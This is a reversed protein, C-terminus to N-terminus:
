AYRGLLGEEDERMALPVGEAYTERMEPTIDIYWFDGKTKEYDLFKDKDSYGTMRSDIFANAEEETDFYKYPEATYTDFVEWEGLKHRQPEVGFRKLFKKVFQPIKKDYLNKHFEGGIELDLGSYTKPKGPLQPSPAVVENVIKDAMEKGVYDALEDTAVNGLNEVNGEKYKVVLQFHDGIAQAEISDIYKALNYRDAQVDGTTWTLREISPDRIAEMFHRKWGLEHWTKKYPADPVGKWKGSEVMEDAYSQQQYPTMKEWDEDTIGYYNKAVLPTPTDGYGKKQGTQHWDSQYEESHLSKKGGVVRENLRLSVLVNPEDWHGGTYQNTYSPIESESLVKLAEAYSIGFLDEMQVGAEHSEGMADVIMQAEDVRDNTPLQILIEQPNEGGPLNLTADNAYKTDDPGEPVFGERSFLVEPLRNLEDPVRPSRGLVTEELEIPEILSLAEEKTLTGPAASLLSETAEGQTSVLGLQKAESTGGKEKKIRGLWYNLDGKQQPATTVARRAPSFWTPLKGRLLSGAAAIPLALQEGTLPEYERQPLGQQEAFQNQIDIFAQASPQSLRNIFPALFDGAERYAAKYLPAIPATLLRLSGSYPLPTVQRETAIQNLAARVEDLVRGPYDFKERDFDFLNDRDRDDGLISHAM